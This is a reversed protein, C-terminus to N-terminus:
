KTHIGVLDMHTVMDALQMQLKMQQVSTYLQKLQLSCRQLQHQM